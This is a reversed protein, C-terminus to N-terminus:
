LGSKISINNRHKIHSSPIDEIVNLEDTENGTRIMVTYYFQSDNKIQSLWKEHLSKASHALEPIKNSETILNYLSGVTERIGTLEFIFHDVVKTDLHHLMDRIREYCASDVNKSKVLNQFEELLAGNLQKVAMLNDHHSQPKTRCLLIEGLYPSHKEDFLGDPSYYIPCAPAYALEKANFWSKNGESMLIEYFLERSVFNFSVGVVEGRLFYAGDKKITTWVNCGVPFPLNSTQDSQLPILENRNIELSVNRRLVESKTTSLEGESPTTSESSQQIVVGAVTTAALIRAFSKDQENLSLDCTDDPHSKTSQENKKRVNVEVTNVSCAALNTGANRGADFNEEGNDVNCENDTFVHTSGPSTRSDVNEEREKGNDLRDEIFFPPPKEHKDACISRATTSELGVADPDVIGPHVVNLSDNEDTSMPSRAVSKDKEADYAPQLGLSPQNSEDTRDDPVLQQSEPGSSFQVYTTRLGALMTDMGRQYTELYNPKLWNQDNFLPAWKETLADTRANMEDTAAHPPLTKPNMQKTTKRVREKRKRKRVLSTDVRDIGRNTINGFKDKQCVSLPDRTTAINSSFEVNANTVSKRRLGKAAALLIAENEADSSNSIEDATSNSGITPLPSNKPRFKAVFGKVRASIDEFSGVHDSIVGCDAVEKSRSQEYEDKSKFNTKEGNGKLIKVAEDYALAADSELRYQGLYIKKKKTNHSITVEYKQERNKFTVGMFKSAMTNTRIEHQHTENLNGKSGNATIGESCSTETGGAAKIKGILADIFRQAKVTVESSHDDVHADVGSVELETARAKEYEDLSEFNTRSKKGKKTLLNERLLAKVAQDYAFAANTELRYNGVHHLKRGIGIQARWSKQRKDHHVGKFRSTHAKKTMTVGSEQVGPPTSMNNLKSSFSGQSPDDRASENKEDSGSVKGEPEGIKRFTPM